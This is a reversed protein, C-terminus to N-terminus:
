SPKLSEKGQILCKKKWLYFCIKKQYKLIILKQYFFASSQNGFLFRQQSITFYKQPQADSLLGTKDIATSKESESKSCMRVWHFRMRTNQKSICREDIKKPFWTPSISVDNRWIKKLYCHVFHSPRRTNILTKIINVFIGQSITKKKTEKWSPSQPNCTWNRADQSREGTSM